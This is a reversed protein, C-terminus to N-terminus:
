PIRLTQGPKILDPDNGIVGTNASYIEQWRGGDGLVQKAIGYLTDGSKVTYTKPTPPTPRSTAAAANAQPQNQPQTTIILERAEVLTISYEIDGHGGTWDPLFTAIYVDHNIATNTVLLRVKTDTNSWSLLQKALDLPPKWNKVFSAGKRGIGPLNGKWSFRVPERGKSMSISGLNIVDFSIVRAETQM